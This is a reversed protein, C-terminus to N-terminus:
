AGCRGYALKVQVSALREYVSALRDGHYDIGIYVDISAGSVYDHTDSYPKNNPPQDTERDTYMRAFGVV